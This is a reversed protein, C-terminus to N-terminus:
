LHPTDLAVSYQHWRFFLSNRHQTLPSIYNGLVESSLVVPLNSEVCPDMNLAEQPSLITTHVRRQVQTAHAMSRHIQDVTM